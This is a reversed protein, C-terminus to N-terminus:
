CDQQQGQQQQEALRLPHMQPGSAEGCRLLSAWRKEQAPAEEEARLDDLIVQLRPGPIRTFLLATHGLTPLSLM